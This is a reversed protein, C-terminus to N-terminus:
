AGGLIFAVEPSSYFPELRARLLRELDGSDQLTAVVAPAIRVLDGVLDDRSLDLEHLLETLTTSGFREFFGDVIAAGLDAIHENALTSVALGHVADVVGTTDERRAYQSLGGVPAQAVLDWVELVADRTTPDRLTEILIRNLRRVAFTGGKGVADGLLGEFQKDAAGMVRSAATTGFSMLQGLGPVKDAVTKNAQLVEGVIRGMFRTAITGVLPSATLRELAKELLPNLALLEDIVTELRARDVLDGIPYPEDPGELVVTTVLEIIGDVAASGPVTALARAVIDTVADRDVLDAIPHRGASDLLEGALVSVTSTLQEGTLRELHYAVQADLLQQAVVDSRAPNSSM